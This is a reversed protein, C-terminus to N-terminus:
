RQPLDVGLLGLSGMEAILARGRDDDGVRTILRVPAGLSAAWACFNSAQGGGGVTIEAANDDNKQLPEEPVITIDLVLDGISLIM